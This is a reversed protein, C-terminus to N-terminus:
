PIHSLTPRCKTAGAAKRKRLLASAAIIGDELGNQEIRNRERDVDAVMNLESNVAVEKGSIKACRQKMLVLMGRFIM